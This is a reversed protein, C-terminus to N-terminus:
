TAPSGSGLSLESQPSEKEVTNKSPEAITAELTEQIRVVVPRILKGQFTYGTALMEGIIAGNAVEKGDPSQHRQADFGEGTAALVASLGVRRAAERCANQFQNLQSILKEQGSREAARTIAFVHDLMHILVGLWEAEARRLKEVELRLTAKESDNTKQLFATFERAEASMRDTIEKALGATKDARAQASQLFESASTIQAVCSELGTIKESAACLSSTEILKVLAGYKLVARYELLYPLIGLLAGLGACVGLATLEWRDLPLKGRQWYIYYALGLMIADGLFFPWKPVKLEKLDQAVQMLRLM